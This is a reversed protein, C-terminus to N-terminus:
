TQEGTSAAMYSCAAKVVHRPYKLNLSEKVKALGSFELLERESAMKCRIYRKKARQSCLENTYTHDMYTNTGGYKQINKLKTKLWHKIKNNEIKFRTELFTNDTGEVLKLPPHYCTSETFVNCFRQSDWRYLLTKQVIVHSSVRALRLVPPRPCAAPPAARAAAAEQM